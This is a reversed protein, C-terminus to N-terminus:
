GRGHLARAQASTVRRSMAHLHLIRADGEHEQRVHEDHADACLVVNVQLNVDFLRSFYFVFWTLCCM